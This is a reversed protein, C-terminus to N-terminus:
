RQLCAEAVQSLFDEGCDLLRTVLPAVDVQYGQWVCAEAPLSRQSKRICTAVFTQYWERNYQLLATIQHKMEKKQQIAKLTEKVIRFSRYLAIGLVPSLNRPHKEFWCQMERCCEIPLSTTYYYALRIQKLAKSDEKELRAIEAKIAAATSFNRKKQGAHRHFLAALKFSNGSEAMAKDLYSAWAHSQNYDFFAIVIREKSRSYLEEFVPWFEAYLVQLCGNFSLQLSEDVMNKLILLQDSESLKAKELSKKAKSALQFCRGIQTFVEENLRLSTTNKENMGCHERVLKRIPPSLKGILKKAINERLLNKDSSQALLGLLEILDLDEVDLSTLRAAKVQQAKKKKDQEKLYFRRLSQEKQRSFLSRWRGFPKLGHENVWLFFSTQRRIRQNAVEKKSVCSEISDKFGGIGQKSALSRPTAQSSGTSSPWQSSSHYSM